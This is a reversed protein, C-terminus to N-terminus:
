SRFRKHKTMPQSTRLGSTAYGGIETNCPSLEWCRAGGLFVLPLSCRCDCLHGGFPLECVLCWRFPLGLTAYCRGACCGHMGGIKTCRDGSRTLISRGLFFLVCRVDRWVRRADAVACLPPFTCFLILRLCARQPLVPSPRCASCGLM